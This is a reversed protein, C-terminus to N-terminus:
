TKAATGLLDIWGNNQVALVREVDAVFQAQQDATATKPDVGDVLRQLQDATAAYSAAIRQHQTAAIHTAFAAAITTAAATWAALHAGPLAAAVAALVAGAATAGLQCLRLKRATAMHEAIKGRHWDAQDQAREKRYDEFTRVPPLGRDDATALQQGVLLDKSRTQVTDFQARLREARDAAAYPKVGALYRYTEAKLAESAARAGTWRSTNESTLMSAQVFGAAALLAASVAALAAAAASVLWAQAAFAAVVAGVVLLALNSLRWWNLSKQAIEAAKSWQRHGRWVATLVRDEVEAPGDHGAAGSAAQLDGARGPLSTDLGPVVGPLLGYVPSDARKAALTERLVQVLQPVSGGPSDPDYRLNQGTRLDFPVEDIRACILVTSGPRAAHRIGLEYFVNADHVSVDAVVVDALCLERLVDVRVNGAQVLEGTGGDDIGAEALAPGILQEHVREFDIGARRGFGRIVWARV